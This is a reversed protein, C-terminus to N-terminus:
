NVILVSVDKSLSLVKQSVSGMIFEKIGSLGRRGIVILDYGLKSEEIIDRAIGQKKANAKLIIKDEQFGADLLMQKAKELAQEILEKKKNELLCFNSQQSKFYPTLEPSNMECLAATDPLISFLTLRSNTNFNKVVFEISRMANESDDFAVLVRQEM